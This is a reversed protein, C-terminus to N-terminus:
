NYLIFWLAGAGKGKTDAIGNKKMKQLINSVKSKATITKAMAVTPVITYITLHYSSIIGAYAPLDEQGHPATRKKIRERYWWTPIDWSAKM